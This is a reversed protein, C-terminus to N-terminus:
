RKDAGSAVSGVTIKDKLNEFTSEGIGRVNMLDEVSRFPTTQRYDVIAKAKAPGVGPLAVLEAETAANLDVVGSGMVPAASALTLLLALACMASAFGRIRKTM